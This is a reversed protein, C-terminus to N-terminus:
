SSQVATSIWGRNQSFFGEFARQSNNCNPRNKTATKKCICIFLLFFGNFNILYPENPITAAKKGPNRETEKGLSTLRYISLIGFPSNFHSYLLFPAFFNNCYDAGIKESRSIKMKICMSIKQHNKWWICPRNGTAWLGFTTPEFGAEAVMAYGGLCARGPGRM